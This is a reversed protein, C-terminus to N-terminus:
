WRSEKSLHNVLIYFLRWHKYKGKNKCLNVASTQVEPTVSSVSTASVHVSTSQIESTAQAEPKVPSVKRAPVDEPTSSFVRTAQVISTVSSVTTAQGQVSTPPVVHTAPADSTAPVLTTEYPPTKSTQELRFSPFFFFYKMPNDCVVTTTAVTFSVDTATFWLHPSKLVASKAVLPSYCIAECYSLWDSRLMSLPGVLQIKSIVRIYRSSLGDHLTGNLEKIGSYSKFSHTVYCTHPSCICHLKNM